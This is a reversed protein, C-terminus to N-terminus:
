PLLHSGTRSHFTADNEAGYKSAQDGFRHDLFRNAFRLVHYITRPGVKPLAEPNFRV